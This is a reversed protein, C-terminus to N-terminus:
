KLGLLKARKKNIESLLYNQGIHWRSKEVMDPLKEWNKIMEELKIEFDKPDEYNTIGPKNFEPLYKPALIATGACTAELWSCNSKNLNFEHNLLPVVMIPAALDILTRIYANPHQYPIEVVLDKNLLEIVDPNPEGIFIWPWDPYKAQIAVIAPFVSELDKNHGLAGRWVICKKRPAKSFPWMSDWYANPLVHVNKNHQSFVAKLRETSVTIIAAEKAASEIALITPSGPAYIHAHPNDEPVNWPDDDFDVWCPVGMYTFQSIVQTTSPSNPWSLYAMDYYAAHDWLCNNSTTIDIDHKRRLDSFPATTRYVNTGHGSEPASIFLRKM